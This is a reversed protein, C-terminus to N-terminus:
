EAARVALEDARAADDGGAAELDMAGLGHAHSLARWAYAAALPLVGNGLLRLPQSRSALGDAMRRFEPEAEAEWWERGDAELRRAWAHLDRAAASPAMHPSSRLVSAWAAADGPGPPFLAQARASPSDAKRSKATGSPIRTARPTRADRVADALECSPEAAADRGSRVGHEARGEGRGLRPAHGVHADPKGAGSDGQAWGADAGHALNGAADGPRREPHGADGVHGGAGRDDPAGQGEPRRGAHIGRDDRAPHALEGTGGGEPHLGFEGGRQQREPGPHGGDADAMLNCGDAPEARRGQRGNGRGHDDRKDRYAVCFWRLREHPAGVEEASFLGAAPTWGMDWLERLVTEAGLTVHGAVNELFIWRLGDGLERAVRAVDPWLHREDDEGRRQGAQSFPQCPYGALLTDIAGALPRADFTTLDSWIPAPALYGARQASVLVDRPYEEWEVFARTHFGPEALMLGMDLGAGGACLSLGNRPRPVVNM